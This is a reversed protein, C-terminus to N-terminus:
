NACTIKALFERPTYVPIKSHRKLGKDSSIILDCGLRQACALQAEDEYDPYTSDNAVVLDREKIEVIDIDHFLAKISDRFHQLPCKYLSCMSYQADIISQSSVYPKIRNVFLYRFLSRVTKFCPRSDCLFDILVNTDCYLKLNKTM